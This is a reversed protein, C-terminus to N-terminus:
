NDLRGVGVGAKSIEAVGVGLTCTMTGSEVAVVEEVGVALEDEFIEFFGVGVGVRLGERSGAVMAVEVGVGVGVTVREFSSSILSILLRIAFKSIYLAAWLVAPAKNFKVAGLDSNLLFRYSNRRLVLTGYLMVLQPNNSLLSAVKRTGM